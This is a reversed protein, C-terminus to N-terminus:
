GWAIFLCAPRQLAPEGRLIGQVLLGAEDLKAFGNINVRGLTRFM